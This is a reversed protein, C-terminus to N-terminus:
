IELLDECRCGLARGLKMVTIAGAHNIAESLKPLSIAGAAFDQAFNEYIVGEYGEGDVTGLLCM